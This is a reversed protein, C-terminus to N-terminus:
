AAAMPMVPAEMGSVRLYLPSQQADGPVLAPGHLGGKLMGARSSLDLDSVRNGMVM